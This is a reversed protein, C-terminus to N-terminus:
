NLNIAYFSITTKFIKNKQQQQLRHFPALFTVQFPNLNKEGIVAQPQVVLIGKSHYINRTAKTNGNNPHYHLLPPSCDM